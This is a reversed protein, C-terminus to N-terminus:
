SLLNKENNWKSSEHFICDQQATWKCMAHWYALLTYYGSDAPLDSDDDDADAADGIIM